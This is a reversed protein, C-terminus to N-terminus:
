KFLQHINQQFSEKDRDNFIEQHMIEMEEKQKKRHYMKLLALTKRQFYLDKRLAPSLLLKAEFLLRDSVPLSGQLYAEIIRTNNWSIKM